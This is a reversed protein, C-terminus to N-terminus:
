TGDPFRIGDREPHHRRSDCLETFVDPYGKMVAIVESVQAETASELPPRLKWSEAFGMQYMYVQNRALWNLDLLSERLALDRRAIFDIAERMREEDLMAVFRHATAPSFQGFLEGQQPHHHFFLYNRQVGGGIICLREGYERILDLRYPVNNFDEKLGVIADHELLGEYADISFIPSAADTPSINNVLLLPFDATEAITSLHPGYQEAPWGDQEPMAFVAHAGLEKIQQILAATNETTDIHSCAIFVARDGIVDAITRTIDIPEEESVYGIQSYAYTLCTNTMGADLLWTVYRAIGAHDVSLNDCYLIPLPVMPGAIRRRLTEYRNM